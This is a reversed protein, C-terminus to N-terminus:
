EVVAKVTFMINNFDRNLSPSHYKEQIPAEAFSVTNGVKVVIAPSAVWLTKKGDQVEFYTFQKADIVTLVKGKKTLAVNTKSMDAPGAAGHAAAAPMGPHGAPATAPAAPMGPHGPPTTPTSNDALASVSLTALALLAALTKM